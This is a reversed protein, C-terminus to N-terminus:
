GGLLRKYAEAADITVNQQVPPLDDAGGIALKDGYVKPLLKSAVWKRADVRLRNRAIATPSLDLTVEEGDYRAVIEAEDAIEIIEAALMEAQVRKAKAYQEAVAPRDHCWGLFTSDRIGLDLCIARLSEHGGVREIIADAKVQTFTDPRGGLSKAVM